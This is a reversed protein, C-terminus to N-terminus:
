PPPPRVLIMRRRLPPPRLRPGWRLHIAMRYRLHVLLPCRLHILLHGLLHQRGLMDPRRHLYRGNGCRRGLRHSQHFLCCVLYQLSPEIGIINNADSGCCSRHSKNAPTTSAVSQARSFFANKSAHMRRISRNHTYLALRQFDVARLTIRPERPLPSITSSNNGVVGGSFFPRHERPSPRNFVSLPICPYFTLSPALSLSARSGLYLSSVSSKEKGRMGHQTFSCQTGSATFDFKRLGGAVWPTVHQTWAPSSTRFGKHTSWTHCQTCIIQLTYV